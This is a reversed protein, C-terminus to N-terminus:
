CIGQPRTSLFISQPGQTGPEFPAQQVKDEKEQKLNCLCVKM